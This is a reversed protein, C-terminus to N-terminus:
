RGAPAGLTDAVVALVDGPAFPKSLVFRIGSRKTEELNLRDGWGTVFGLPLHPFRQRCAAAVDWGSMGPMSIDTLVLDVPETECHVLAEEGNAAEVITHGASALIDRLVARIESEDDVVLVHGSRTASPTSEEAPAEDQEKSVPLRVIFTSGSGLRTEIDITGEHRKVIGFSVALGLGTGRAGKTTFFPELVRRRTEESMGCGTDAAAVTVTEEDSSVHFVFQGGDPMADLGNILLNMFVERLEAAIGKVPCAADGEVRVDYSVGLSQGEDKWRGRTLEVVDRLLEPVDVRGGPRTQRTRTFEQIRRVTQAGDWAAQRIIQIDKSVAPPAQGARLLLEARGVVVALLNNFDHAVGAAMEGLASLREAQVMLQQSTELEQLAVRLEELLQANQIAVGAQSALSAALNQYREPFPVVDADLSTPTALPRGPVRKCNILQLVGVIEGETTTVPVVLMSMTRYGIHADFEPNIHFPSERSLDYVDDIRLIEGSLAVYGAISEASIALTSEIFPVQVSDNQAMKFRLRRTGDPAKEVVYLSGADSRTIERGKTLILELLADLNREASLRIGIASLEELQTSMERVETTVRAHECADRLVQALLSAPVSPDLYAYCPSGSAALPAAGPSVLAVVPLGARRAAAMAAVNSEGDAPDVVLVSSVEPRVPPLPGHAIHAELDEPLWALIESVASDRVFWVLQRRM